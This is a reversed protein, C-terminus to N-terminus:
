KKHVHSHYMRSGRSRWPHPTASINMGAVLMEKAVTWGSRMAVAEPTDFKRREKLADAAAAVATM